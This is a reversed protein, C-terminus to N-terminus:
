IIDISTNYVQQLYQHTLGGFISMLGLAALLATVAYSSAKVANPHTRRSTIILVSLVVSLCVCIAFQCYDTIYTGASDDIGRHYLLKRMMEKKWLFASDLKKLVVFLYCSTSTRCSSYFLVTTLVLTSSFLPGHGDEKELTVGPVDGEVGFDYM